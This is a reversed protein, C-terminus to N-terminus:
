FPIDDESPPETKPAKDDSSPPFKEFARVIYDYPKGYPIGGTQIGLHHHIVDRLDDGKWRHEGAVAFLRKTQPESIAGRTHWVGVIAQWVGESINLALPHPEANLTPSKVGSSGNSSRSQPQQIGGNPQRGTDNGHEGSDVDEGTDIAFQKSLYNKLGYTMAKGLGKDSSDWGMAPVTCEVQEEPKGVNTLTFVMEMEHEHAVKPKGDYGTSERVQHVHNEITYTLALGARGLLPKVAAFVTDAGLGQFSRNRTVQVEVDKRLRPCSCTVWLIREHINGELWTDPPGFAGGVAAEAEDGAPLNSQAAPAEDKTKTM